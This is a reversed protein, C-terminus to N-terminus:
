RVGMEPDFLMHLVVAGVGVYRREIMLPAFPLQCPNHAAGLDGLKQQLIRFFHQLHRLFRRSLKFGTPYLSLLPM